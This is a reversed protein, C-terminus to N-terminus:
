TCPKGLFITLTCLKPRPKKVHMSLGLTHMLTQFSRLSPAVWTLGRVSVRGVEEDPGLTSVKDWEVRFM